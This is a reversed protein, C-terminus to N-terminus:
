MMILHDGNAIGYQELTTNQRLMINKEVSCLCEEGSAVYRQNSLTEVTQAILASVSKIKINSPILVDFKESIAPIYINVLIKM